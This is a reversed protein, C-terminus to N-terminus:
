PLTTLRRQPSYKKLLMDYLKEYGGSREARLAHPVEVLLTKGDLPVDDVFIDAEIRLFPPGFAALFLFCILLLFPFAARKM